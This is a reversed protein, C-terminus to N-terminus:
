SYIINTFEQEICDPLRDALGESIVKVLAPPLSDFKTQMKALGYLCNSYQQTMTTRAVVGYAVEFLNKKFDESMNDFTADLLGMAYISMSGEGEMLDQKHICFNQLINEQSQPTLSSWQFKLKCLGYLLNGVERANMVRTVREITQFFRTRLAPSFDKERFGIRMMGTVATVIDRSSVTGSSVLVELLAMCLSKNNPIRSSLGIKSLSWLWTAAYGPNNPSVTFMTEVHNRVETILVQSRERPFQPFVNVAGKLTKTFNDVDKDAVYKRIIELNDDFSVRDIMQNSKRDNPKWQGRPHQQKDHTNSHSNSYNKSSISRKRQTIQKNKNFDVPVNKAAEASEVASYLPHSHSSRSSHQHSVPHALRHFSDVSRLDLWLVIMVELIIGLWTNKM